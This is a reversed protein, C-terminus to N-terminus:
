CCLNRIGFLINMKNNVVRNDVMKVYKMESNIEIGIGNNSHIYNREMHVCSNSWSSIGNCFSNRIVNRYLSIKGGNIIINAGRKSYEFVSDYAEFEGRYVKIAPGLMSSIHCKNMLVSAAIMVCLGAQPREQSRTMNFERSCTTKGIHKRYLKQIVSSASHGKFAYLLALDPCCIDGGCTIRCNDIQLHSIEALVVAPPFGIENGIRCLTLNNMYVQSRTRIMVYTRSSIVVPINSEIGILKLPLEISLEQTLTHYGPKLMITDGSCSSNVALALADPTPDVLKIRQKYNDSGIDYWSKNVRMVNFLDPYPSSLFSLINDLLEYPIYINMVIKHNCITIM